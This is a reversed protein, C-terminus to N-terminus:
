TLLNIKGVLYERELYIQRDRWHPTNCRQRSGEIGSHRFTCVRIGCKSGPIDRNGSKGLTAKGMDRPTM